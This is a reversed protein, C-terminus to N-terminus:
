RDHHEGECQMFMKVDGGRWVLVTGVRHAGNEPRASSLSLRPRWCIADGCCNTSTAGAARDRTAGGAFSLHWRTDYWPGRRGELQMAAQTSFSGACPAGWPGRRGGVLVRPRRDPGPLPRNDSRSVSAQFSRGVPVESTGIVVGKSANNMARRQPSPDGADRAM